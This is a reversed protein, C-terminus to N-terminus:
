IHDFEIVVALVNKGNSSSKFIIEQSEGINFEVDQILLSNFIFNLRELINGTSSEFKNMVDDINIEANSYFFCMYSKGKIDGLMNFSGEGPLSLNNKTYPLLPSMNKKFPFIKTTKFTLDTGFAYIYVPQDNTLLLEFKTGSPYSENMVFYQGNYKSSMITGDDKKLILKGSLDIDSSDFASNDIIEFGYLSFFKYDSYKIWAFGNDGWNLGWSNEVEFAGGFKDDDYGIVVLAHGADWNKYESESPQWLEGSYDFSPPCNIAIVVPKRESISKKTSLIKNESDKYFIERYELIKFKSADNIDTSLVKRECSYEFRALKLVGQDKLIDLADVLAVGSNCSKGTRIQNYVYSPSFVNNDIAVQNWKKKIAELITRAYYATAWGACTALYGQDGPTPAFEKLSFSYPINLYDGRLLPASVISKTYLGEDLLLGRGHLQPFITRIFFLNFVM